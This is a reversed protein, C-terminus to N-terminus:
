GSEAAEESGVTGERLRVTKFLRGRRGVTATTVCLRASLGLVGLLGDGCGSEVFVESSRSVAEKFTDVGTRGGM